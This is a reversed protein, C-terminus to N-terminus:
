QLFVVTKTEYEDPVKSPVDIVKIIPEEVIYYNWDYVELDLLLKKLKEILESNTM